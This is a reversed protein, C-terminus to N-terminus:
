KNKEVRNNYLRQKFYRFTSVVICAIIFYEIWDRDVIIESVEPAKTTEFISPEEIRISSM